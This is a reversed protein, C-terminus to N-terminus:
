IISLTILAIGFTIGDLVFLEKKGQSAKTAILCSVGYLILLFGINIPFSLWATLANVFLLLMLPLIYFLAYWKKLYHPLKQYNSYM